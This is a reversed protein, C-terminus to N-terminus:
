FTMVNEIFTEYEDGLDMPTAAERLHQYKQLNKEGM